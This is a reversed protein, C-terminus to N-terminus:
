PVRATTRTGNISNGRTDKYTWAVSLIDRPSTSTMVRAYDVDSLRHVTRVLAPQTFILRNSECRLVGGVPVCSQPGGLSDLADCGMSSGDRRLTCTTMTGHQLLTTGSANRIDYIVSGASDGTFAFEYRGAGPDFGAETFSTMRPAVADVDFNLPITFMVPHADGTAPSETTTPFGLFSSRTLDLMGQAQQEATRVATMTVTTAPFTIGSATIIVPVLSGRLSECNGTFNVVFPPQRMHSALVVNDNGVVVSTPTCPVGVDAPLMDVPVDVRSDTIPTVDTTIPMDVPVSADVMDVPTGSDTGMDVMMVDVSDASVVDPLSADVTDTPNQVDVSAESGSVDAPSLSVPTSTFDSEKVEISCAALAGATLVTGFSRRLGGIVSSSRDVSAVRAGVSKIGSDM